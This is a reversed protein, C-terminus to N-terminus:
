LLVPAVTTSSHHITHYLTASSVVVTEGTEVRRTFISQFTETKREEAGAGERHHDLHPSSQQARSLMYHPCTQSMTFLFSKVREEGTICVILKSTLQIVNILRQVPGASM